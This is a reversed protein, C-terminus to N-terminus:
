AIGRDHADDFAVTMAEIVVARGHDAVRREIDLRHRADHWASGLQRAYPEAARNLRGGTLLDVVYWAEVALFAGYAVAVVRDFTSTGPGAAGEAM